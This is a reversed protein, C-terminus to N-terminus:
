FSTMHFDRDSLFLIGVDSDRLNEEDCPKDPLCVIIKAKGFFTLNDNLLDCIRSRWLPRNSYANDSEIDGNDVKEQAGVGQSGLKDM